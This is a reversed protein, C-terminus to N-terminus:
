KFPNDGNFFSVILRIMLIICAFSALYVIFNIFDM